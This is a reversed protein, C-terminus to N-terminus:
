RTAFSAEIEEDTEPPFEDPGAATYALAGAMALMFAFAVLEPYPQQFNYVVVGLAVGILAMVIIAITWFSFIGRARWAGYLAVLVGVIEFCIGTLFIASSGELANVGGQLVDRNIGQIAGIMMLLVAVLM